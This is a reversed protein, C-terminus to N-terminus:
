NDSAYCISYAKITCAFDVGGSSHATTNTKSTLNLARACKRAFKLSPHLKIRVIPQLLAAANFINGTGNISRIVLVFRDSM